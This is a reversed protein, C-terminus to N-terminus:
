KKKKKTEKAKPKEAEPEIADIIALAEITRPLPVGAMTALTPIDGKGMANNAIWVCRVDCEEKWIPHEVMDEIQMNIEKDITARQITLYLTAM